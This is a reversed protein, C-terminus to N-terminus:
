VPEETFVLVNPLHKGGHVTVREAHTTAKLGLTGPNGCIHQQETLVIGPENVPATLKGITHQVLRKTTQEHRLKRVEGM